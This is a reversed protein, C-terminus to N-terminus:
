INTRSRNLNSNALNPNKPSPIRMSTNGEEFKSLSKELYFQNSKKMLNVRDRRSLQMKIKEDQDVFIDLEEVLKQNQETLIIVHNKLKELESFLKENDDVLKENNEKSFDLDEKLRRIDSDREKLIRDLDQNSRECESRAKIERNYDFRLKELDSKLGDSFNELENCRGQLKINSSKSDDLQKQVLLLTDERGKCKSNLNNNEFSL